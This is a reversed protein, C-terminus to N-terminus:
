VEISQFLNLTLELFVVINMKERYRTKGTVNILSWGFAYKEPMRM